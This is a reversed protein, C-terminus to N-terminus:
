LRERQWSMEKKRGVAILTVLNQEKSTQFRNEAVSGGGACGKDDLAEVTIVASECTERHDRQM